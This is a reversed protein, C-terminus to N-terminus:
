ALAAALRQAVLDVAADPLGPYLPLALTRADAASAAPFAAPALGYRERYYRLRHLAYAGRVTEVDAARLKAVVADRDATEPLLVVYSQWTHLWGKPEHPRQLAPTAALREDYLAALRRREGLAWALRDLQVIGLAAQVENLRYNLGPALLDLGGAAPELGHNRLARLRRALAADETVVCGGEATTVSKRPHFSFCGLVGATGANVARGGVEQRAGLACAADEIVPLGHRRALHGIAEMDAMLGFAHVPLLARTRPTLARELRAPDVNFTAPDLDALVTRAGVLEIVNATAPFTFDTTLVEDGPGIGLALLAVHLAAAGSSVAVVHAAGTVARLREEFRAVAAGQTLYGSALVSAVAAQEEDGLAPRVIRIV